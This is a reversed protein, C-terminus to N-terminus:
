DSNEHFEDDLFLGTKEGFKVKLKQTLPILVIVCPSIYAFTSDLPAIPMVHNTEM